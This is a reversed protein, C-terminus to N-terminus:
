VLDKIRVPKIPAHPAFAVREDRAVENAAPLMAAVTSECYRGQCRGMGARTRRKVAGLTTAGRAIADDVTGRTVNECRCVITDPQALRTIIPPAAFAQWLARQFALHRALQRRAHEVERAPAELGLSRAVACGTLFGQARAVQAGRFAAADGIAYV